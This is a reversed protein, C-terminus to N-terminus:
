ESPPDPYDYGDYQRWQRLEDEIAGMRNDYTRMHAGFEDLRTTNHLTQQQINRLLDGHERQSVSMEQMLRYMDQLSPDHTHSHPVQTSSSPRDEMRVDETCAPPPPFTKTVIWSTPDTFSIPAEFPMERDSGDAFKWHYTDRLNAPGRDIRIFHALRLAEIDMKRAGTCLDNNSFRLGLKQGIYTVYAGCSIKGGSRRYRQIELWHEIMFSMLDPIGVTEDTSIMLDILMLDKSKARSVTEGRAFITCALARQIVRILPHPINRAKYDKNDIPKVGTLMKWFQDRNLDDRFTLLSIPCVKPLGFWDRLTAVPLRHTQHCLRFKIYPQEQTDEKLELSSLFEMTYKRYSPAEIAWFNESFGVRGTLYLFGDKLGLEELAELDVKHTNEFNRVNLAKFNELMRRTPIPFHDKEFPKASDTYEGSSHESDNSDYREPEPPPTPPRRDHALKSRKERSRKM